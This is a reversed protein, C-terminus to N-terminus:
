GMGAIEKFGSGWGWASLMQEELVALEGTGGRDTARGLHEASSGRLVGGLEWCRARLM